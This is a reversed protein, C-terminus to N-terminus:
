DSMEASASRDLRMAGIILIAVFAILLFVLDFRRVWRGLEQYSILRDRAYISITM